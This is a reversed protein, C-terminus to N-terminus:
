RMNKIHNKLIHKMLKFRRLTIPNKESNEEILNELNEMLKENEFYGNVCLFKFTKLAKSFSQLYEKENINYGYESFINIFREKLNLEMEKDLICAELISYKGRVLSHINGGLAMVMKFLTPDKKIFVARQIPNLRDKKGFTNVNKGEIVSDLEELKEDVDELDAFKELIIGKRAEQIGKPNNLNQYHTLAESYKKMGLLIDGVFLFDKKQKYINIVKQIEKQSLIEDEINEKLGEKIDKERYSIGFENNKEVAVFFMREEIAKDIIMKKFHNQKGKLDNKNIKKIAENFDLEEISLEIDRELIWTPEGAREFAYQAEEIKDLKFLKIGEELWDKQEEVKDKVEEEIIIEEKKELFDDLKALLPNEELKEEMIILNEQARTIGVYFINFFKRYRQDQKVEKKLIKEWEKLYASSLNYCIINKYELGKIEYITFVRHKTDLHIYLDTKTEEDPVVIAFDVSNQAKKIVDLNPKSIQISGDKQVAVEKYDEIGLNGIYESRLSSLHNALTVIKKGSRYNKSLIKVDSDLTTESFFLNKLREFNFFTSNIMQHIDGALFMNEKKKVLNFLAYIQVETLDQIEDVIVFDYKLKLDKAMLSLDNLDYYSNKKLWINYNEAVKYLFEREARALVSYKSSLNLYDELPILSNNLDRKWNDARKSIMLGKIIGNVESYVEEVSLSLKKQNPYSLNFFNKFHEFEVVQAKRIDLNRYLFEKMTYFHTIEPNLFSRFERYQEKSNDKLLKNATVYLISNVDYALHNEELNLVKRLTLTSKGSGASGAILYPPYDALCSYQEDNLYYYKYKRETYNDTFMSDKIIEYTIINNWNFYEEDIYEIEDNKDYIVFDDLHYVALEKRKAKKVASDHSSYLLFIVNGDIERTDKNHIFFIRDGSDVRFEYLSDSGKIKKIWFGRPLETTFLTNDVIFNYFFMLRDLVKTNKEKPVSKFFYDTILFKM